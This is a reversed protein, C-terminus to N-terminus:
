TEEKDEPLSEWLTQIKWRIAPLQSLHPGKMLQWDPDGLVLGLLFERQNGTLAAPLEKRLRRRVTELEALAVPNRAMGAFENEFAATM